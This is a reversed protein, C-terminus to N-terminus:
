SEIDQYEGNLKTLVFEEAAVYQEMYDPEGKVFSRFKKEHYTIMAHDIHVAKTIGANTVKREMCIGIAIQRATSIEKSTGKTIESYLLGFYKATLKFVKIVEIDALTENKSPSIKIDKKLLEKWFRCRHQMFMELDTSCAFTMYFDEDIIMNGKNDSFRISNLTLPKEKNDVKKM